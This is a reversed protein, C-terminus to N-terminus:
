DRRHISSTCSSGARAPASAAARTPRSRGGRRTWPQRTSHCPAMISRASSCPTRGGPLSTALVAPQGDARAKAVAEFAGQKARMDEVFIEIHGGCALGVEWAMTNSVQFEILRPADRALVALAEHVVAAEVCGGSVSGAFNGSDDVCLQSGVPRPASGWTSIVTAVAVNRGAEQWAVAQEIIDNGTMKCVGRAEGSRETFKTDAAPGRLPAARIM